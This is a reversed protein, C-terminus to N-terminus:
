LFRQHIQSVLGSRQRQNGWRKENRTFVVYWRHHHRGPAQSSETGGPWIKNTGITAASIINDTTTVYVPLGSANIGRLYALRGKKNRLTLPWGREQATRTLIQRFAAEKLAQAQGAKQLGAKNPVVQASLQLGYLLLLFFSVSMLLPVRCNNM